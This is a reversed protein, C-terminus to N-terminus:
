VRPPLSAVSRQSALGVGRSRSVTEIEWGAALHRRLFAVVERRAAVADPAEIRLEVCIDPRPRLNWHYVYANM